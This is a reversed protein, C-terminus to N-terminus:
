RLVHGTPNTVKVQRPPLPQSSVANPNASALEQQLAGTTGGGSLDKQVARLNGLVATGGILLAFAGGITPSAAGILAVIVFASGAARIWTGLPLLPGAGFMSAYDAVITREQVTPHAAEETGESGEVLYRIAYMGGTVLASLTIASEASEKTM